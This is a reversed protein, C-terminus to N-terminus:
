AAMGQQAGDSQPAVGGPAPAPAAPAPAAAASEKALVARMDKIQDVFTRLLDLRDDPLGLTAEYLVRGQATAFAEELNCYYEPPQYEGSEIMNDMAWDVWDASADAINTYADLDPMDELRMRQAKTIQGAAAWDAITQLRGEPLQPLQSIPFVKSIYQNEPLEVEGWKIQLDRYGALRVVPKVVKAVDLIRIAIDGVFEELAQGLQVHRADEIQNWTRLAVGAELGPQKIGGASQESIGLRQFGRSIDDKVWQYVEPPFVPPSVQEPKMAGKYKIVGAIVNAFDKETLGDNQHSLYRPFACRRMGERIVTITNNLDRQITSIQDFVSKAYFSTTAADYRIVAFPFRPVKHEEEVLVHDGICLIHKGGTPEGDKDISPLHWAELLAVYESQHSSYLVGSTARPARAIAAQDEASTFRALLDEVPFWAREYMNKPQLGGRIESADVFIDDCLRRALGIKEGPLEYVKLFAIGYTLADKFCARVHKYVELESFLGDVYRTLKKCRMRTRFNGGQPLFLPWPKNKGIRNALVDVGQAVINFYPEEYLSVDMPTGGGGFPARMSYAFTQPVEVGNVMYAAKLWRRRRSANQMELKSVIGSVTLAAEKPTAAAFWRVGRGEDAVNQQAEALTAM